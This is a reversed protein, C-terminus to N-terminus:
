CVVPIPGPSMKFGSLERKAPALFIRGLLILHFIFQEIFMTAQLGSISTVQYNISDAGGYDMQNIGIGPPTNIELQYKVLGNNSRQIEAGQIRPVALLLLTLAAAPVLSHRYVLGRSDLYDRYDKIKLNSRAFRKIDAIENKSILSFIDTQRRRFDIELAWERGYMNLSKYWVRIIVFPYLILCILFSLPNKIKISDKEQYWWIWLLTFAFLFNKLYVKWLWFLISLLFNSWFSPARFKAMSEARRQLSGPDVTEQCKEQAAVLRAQLPAREEDSCHFWIEEYNRRNFECLTSTSSQVLLIVNRDFDNAKSKLKIETLDSFYLEFTYDRGLAQARRVKEQLYKFDARGHDEKRPPQVTPERQSLWSFLGTNFLFFVALIWKLTVTVINRM